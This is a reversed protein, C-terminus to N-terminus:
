SLVLCQIKKITLPNYPLGGPWYPVHTQNGLDTWMIIKKRGDKSKNEHVTKKKKKTQKLLM